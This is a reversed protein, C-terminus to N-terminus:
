ARMWKVCGHDFDLFVVEGRCCEDGVRWLWQEVVGAEELVEVAVGGADM